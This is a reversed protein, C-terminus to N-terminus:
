LVDKLKRIINISKETLVLIDQTQNQTLQISHSHKLFGCKIMRKIMPHSTQLQWERNVYLIGGRDYISKILDIKERNPKSAM